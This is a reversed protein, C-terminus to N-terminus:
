VSFDAKEASVGVEQLERLLADHDYPNAFQCRIGLEHAHQKVESSDTLVIVPIDPRIRRVESIYSDLALTPSRWDLLVCCLDATEQLIKVEEEKKRAIKVTYKELSLSFALMEAIDSHYDIVLITKSM